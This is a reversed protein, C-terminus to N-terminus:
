YQYRVPETGRLSITHHIITLARSRYGDYDPSVCEHETTPPGPLSGGRRPATGGRGEDALGIVHALLSVVGRQQQQQWQQRKNRKKKRKGGKREKRTVKERAADTSPVAGSSGAGGATVPTACAATAAPVAVLRSREQQLERLM